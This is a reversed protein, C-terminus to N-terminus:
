LSDENELIWEDAKMANAFIGELSAM